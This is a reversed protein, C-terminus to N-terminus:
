SFCKVLYYVFDFRHKKFVNRNNKIDTAKEVKVDSNQRSETVFISGTFNCFVYKQLINVRIYGQSTKPISLNMNRM